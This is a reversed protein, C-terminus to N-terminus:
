MITYSFNEPKNSSRVFAYSFIKKGNISDNEILEKIQDSTLSTRATEGEHVNFLSNTDFCNLGAFESVFKIYNEVKKQLRGKSDTISKYGGDPSTCGYTTTDMFLKAIQSRTKESQERYLGNLYEIIESIFQSKKSKILLWNWWSKANQIYSITSTKMADDARLLLDIFNLDGMRKHLDMKINIGEGELSAIIFHVTGFPYKTHFSTDPLHFRPNELNPNIKNYNTKIKDHHIENVSIIHQDICKVNPNPVYMDIYTPEDISSVKSENLWVKDASNSFGVIECGLFNYLILGSLVGDIDSNIIINKNDKLFDKM